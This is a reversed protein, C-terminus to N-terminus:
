GFLADNALWRGAYIVLLCPEICHVTCCGEEDAVAGMMVMGMQM